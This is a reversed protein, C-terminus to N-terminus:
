PSPIPNSPETLTHPPSLYTTIIPPPHNSALSPHYISHTPPFPTSPESSVLQGLQLEEMKKSSDSENTTSEIPAASTPPLAAAAMAAEPLASLVFELLVQASDMTSLVQSIPSSPLLLLHIPVLPLFSSGFIKTFLYHFLNLPPMTTRTIHLPINPNKKPNIPNRQPKPPKNPREVPKFLYLHLDRNEAQPIHMCLFTTPTM